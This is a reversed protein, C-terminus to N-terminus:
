SKKKKCWASGTDVHGVSLAGKIFNRSLESASIKNILASQAYLIRACAHLFTHAVHAYKSRAEMKAHWQQHNPYSCCFYIVEKRGVSAAFQPNKKNKDKKKKSCNRMEGLKKLLEIEKLFRARKSKKRM